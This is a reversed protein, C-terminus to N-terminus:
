RESGALALIEPFAATGYNRDRSRLLEVLYDRLPGSVTDRVLAQLKTRVQRLHREAIAEIVVRALTSFHTSSSM